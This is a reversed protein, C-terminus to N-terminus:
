STCRLVRWSPPDLQPPSHMPEPRWRGLTSGHTKVERTHTSGWRLTPERLCPVQAFLALALKSSTAAAAAPSLAPIPTVLPGATDVLAAQNLEHGLGSSKWELTPAGHQKTVM